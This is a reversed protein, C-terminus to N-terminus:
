ITLTTTSDKGQDVVHGKNSCCNMYLSDRDRNNVEQGKESALLWLDVLAPQRGAGWRIGAAEPWSLYCFAARRIGLVPTGPNSDAIRKLLPKWTTKNFTYLYASRTNDLLDPMRLCHSPWISSKSMYFCVLQEVLCVLPLKEQQLWCSVVLDIAYAAVRAAVM